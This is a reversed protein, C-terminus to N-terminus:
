LYDTKANLIVAIKYVGLMILPLIIVIYLISLLINDIFILPFIAIGITIAITIIALQLYLYNKIIQKM